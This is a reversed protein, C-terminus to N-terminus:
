KIFIGKEDLPAQIINKKIFDRGLSDTCKIPKEVTSKQWKKNEDVNSLSIMVM